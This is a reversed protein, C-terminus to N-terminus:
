NAAGANESDPRSPPATDNQAIEMIKIVEFVTTKIGAAEIRAAVKAATERKQHASKFKPLGKGYQAFVAHM